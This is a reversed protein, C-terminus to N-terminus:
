RFGGLAQICSRVLPLAQLVCGETKGRPELAGGAAERFQPPVGDLFFASM